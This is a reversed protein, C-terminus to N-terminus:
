TKETEAAAHLTLHCPTASLTCWVSCWYVLWCSGGARCTPLQGSLVTWWQGTVDSRLYAASQNPLHYHTTHHPLPSLLALWAGSLSLCCHNNHKLSTNSSLLYKIVINVVLCCNGVFWYCCSDQLILSRIMCHKYLYLRIINHLRSVAPQVLQM